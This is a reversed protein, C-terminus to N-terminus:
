LLDKPNYQDGTPARWGKSSIRFEKPMEDHKLTQKHVKHYHHQMGFKWVYTENVCLPCRMPRETCPKEISTKAAANLSFKYFRPCHGAKGEDATQPVNKVVTVQCGSDVSGCFSCASPHLEGKVKHAAM